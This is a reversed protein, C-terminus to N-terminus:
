VRELPFDANPFSGAAPLFQNRAKEKYGRGRLRDREPIRNLRARVTGPSPPEIGRERCRRMVEIVAKQATPRQATLYFDRTVEEIVAEAFPPIRTRGERWGRKQPILALVSGVSRYRRLWRYLTAVDVGCEQARRLADDRGVVRRDVLPAIAAYRREAEKWDEDAIEELDGRFVHIDADACRLDAVSLLESKGSVVDIAVVSDFDLIQAIRFVADGKRVYEGIRLIVRQRSPAFANEFTSPPPAKNESM